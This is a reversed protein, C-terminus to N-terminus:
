SPRLRLPAGWFRTQSLFSSSLDEGYTLRMWEHTGSEAAVFDALGTTRLPAQGSLALQAAATAKRMESSGENM